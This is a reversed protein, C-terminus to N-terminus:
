ALQSLDDTERLRWVREILVGAEDSSRKGAFALVLWVTLFALCSRWM